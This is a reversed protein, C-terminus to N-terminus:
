KPKEVNPPDSKVTSSPKLSGENKNEPVITKTDNDNTTQGVTSVPNQSSVATKETKNELGTLNLGASGDKVATPALTTNPKDSTVIVIHEETKMEQSFVPYSFALLFPLALTRKLYLNM